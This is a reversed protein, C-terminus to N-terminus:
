RYFSDIREFENPNYSITNCNTVVTSRFGVRQVRELNQSSNQDFLLKPRTHFYEYSGGKYILKKHDHLVLNDNRTHGVLKANDRVNIGSKIVRRYGVSFYIRDFNKLTTVTADLCTIFTGESMPVRKLPNIPM